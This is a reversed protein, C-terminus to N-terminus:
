ELVIQFNLISIAECLNHIDQDSKSVLCYINTQPIVGSGPGM